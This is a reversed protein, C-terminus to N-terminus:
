VAEGQGGQAGSEATAPDPPTDPGSGGEPGDQPWEADTSDTTDTFEQLHQVLLEQLPEVLTKRNAGEPGTELVHVVQARVPDGAVWGLVAQVNGGIRELAETHAQQYRAAEEREAERAAAEEETTSHFDNAERAERLLAVLEHDGMRVLHSRYARTFAPGDEDDPTDDPDLQDWGDAVLRREEDTAGLEALRQLFQDLESRREGTAERPWGKPAYPDPM